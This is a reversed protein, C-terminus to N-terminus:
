FRIQFRMQDDADVWYVSGAANPKARRYCHDIVRAKEIYLNSVTFSGPEVDAFVSCFSAYGAPDSAHVFYVGPALNTFEYFGRADAFVTPATAGFGLEVKARAVPVSGTPAFVGEAGLGSSNEYVHGRIEGLSDAIGSRPWLAMTLLIGLALVRYAPM